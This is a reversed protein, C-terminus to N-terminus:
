PPDDVLATPVLRPHDPDSLDLWAWPVRRVRLPRSLGLAKLTPIQHAFGLLRAMRGHAGVVVHTVLYEGEVPTAEVDEICGM